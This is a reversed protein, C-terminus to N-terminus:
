FGKLKMANEMLKDEPLADKEFFHYEVLTAQLISKMDNVNPNRNLVYQCSDPIVLDNTTRKVLLAYDEFYDTIPKTVFDMYIDEWKKVFDEKSCKASVLKIKMKDVPLYLTVIFQNDDTFEYTNPIVFLKETGIDKMNETLSIVKEPKNNNSTSHNFELYGSKNKIITSFLNSQHNEVTTKFISDPVYNSPIYAFAGLSLISLGITVLVQKIKMIVGLDFLM